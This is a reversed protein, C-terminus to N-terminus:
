KQFEIWGYNNSIITMNSKGKIIIAEFDEGQGNSSISNVNVAILEKNVINREEYGEGNYKFVYVEGNSFLVVRYLSSGMFGNPALKEIIEQNDLNTSTNNDESNNEHEGNAEKDSSVIMNKNQNEEVIEEDEYLNDIINGGSQFENLTNNEIENNNLRNKQLDMNQNDSLMNTITNQTNEKKNIIKKYLIFSVVIFIIICVILIFKKM